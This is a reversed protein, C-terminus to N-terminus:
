DIELFEKRIWLPGFRCGPRYSCTSDFPVGLIAIEAEGLSCNSELILNRDLFFDM